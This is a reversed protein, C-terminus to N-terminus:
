RGATLESAAFGGVLVGVLGGLGIMSFYALLTIWGLETGGLLRM